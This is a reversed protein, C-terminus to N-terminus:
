AVAWGVAWGVAKAEAWVAVEVAWAAGVASLRRRTTHQPEEATEWDEDQCQAKDWHVREIEEQCKTAEKERPTDFGHIQGRGKEKKLM